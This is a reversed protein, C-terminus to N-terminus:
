GGVPLLEGVAVGVLPGLVIALWELKSLHVKPGGHLYPILVGLGSGIVAGVLVDSYFHMGARTRLDATASALALQTGWVAARAHTDTTSQAFLYAGSVSAAFTTSSHGSYFSLHSDDGESQAFALNKPDNSYVYPRPRSVLPKVTACLAMGALLTEGFILVRKGTERDFGQGTFLAVPAAVDVAYLIDSVHAAKSSYRGKLHNDFPLIQTRWRASNDVPMLTSLGLVATSAILIGGDLLWGAHLPRGAEQNAAPAPVVPSSEAPSAEGAHAPRCSLLILGAGVLWLTRMM